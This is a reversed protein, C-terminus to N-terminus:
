NEAHMLLTDLMTQDAAWTSKSQYDDGQCFYEFSVSYAGEELRAPFSVARGEDNHARDAFPVFKMLQMGESLADRVDFSEWEAKGLDSVSFYDFDFNGGGFWLWTREGSHDVMSLAGYYDTSGGLKRDNQVTHGDFTYSEYSISYGDAAREVREAYIRPYEGPVTVVGARLSCYARTRSELLHIWDCLEAEGQENTRYIDLRLANPASTDNGNNVFQYVLLEACGDANLDIVDAGAIGRRQPWSDTGGGWSLRAKQESLDSRGYQGILQSVFAPYPSASLDYAAASSIEDSAAPPIFTPQGSPAFGAGGAAPNVPVPGPGGAAPNAPVSEAAACSAMLLILCLLLYARKM